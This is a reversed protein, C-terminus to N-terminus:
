SIESPSSNKSKAPYVARVMLWTVVVFLAYLPASMLIRAAGLAEIASPGAFYLPVQVLLRAAFLGFWMLTLWQAMRYKRPEKRWAVGDGMIFGVFLGILPWGVALSALMALAYISNTILGIVYYDSANGTLLAVAASASVAVLGAVASRTQSRQVLRLVVFLASAGLALALSVTLDQTFGYYLLFLVGPLITEILGRVGGLVKLLEAGSLAESQMISSIGARGAVSALQDEVASIEEAERDIRADHKDRHSEHKKGM